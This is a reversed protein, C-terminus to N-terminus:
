ASDDSVGRAEAQERKWREVMGNVANRADRCLIFDVRKSVECKSVLSTARNAWAYVDVAEKFPLPKEDRNGEVLSLCFDRLADNVSKTHAAVAIAGAVCAAICALLAVVQLGTM